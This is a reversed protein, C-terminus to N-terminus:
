DDLYIPGLLGNQFDKYIMMKVRDYDIINCKTLINRSTGVKELLELTTEFDGINYKSKTAEYHSNKIIEFLYDFLEDFPLVDLKVSGLLALNMIVKKDKYNPELIGPTDFVEVRKTVKFLTTIRTKGPKNEVQARKKKFLNNILTSKGVNPIGVIAFAAPPLPFNHKLYKEDQPFRLTELYDLLVQSSNNKNLDLALYKVNEKTNEQIFKNVKNKDALDIKSLIYIIRSVNSKQFISHLGEPFSSEPSRADLVVIIGQCTKIINEMQNLAKKMHGPFYQFNKINNNKNEM